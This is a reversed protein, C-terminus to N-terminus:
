NDSQGRNDAESEQWEREALAAKRDKARARRNTREPEKGQGEPPLAPEQGESAPTVRTAPTVSHRPDPALAPENRENM